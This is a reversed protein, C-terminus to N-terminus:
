VDLLGSFSAAIMPVPDWFPITKLFSTTKGQKNARSFSGPTQTIERCSQAIQEFPLAGRDREGMVCVSFTYLGVLFPPFDLILGLARKKKPLDGNQALSRDLRRNHKKKEFSASISHRASLFTFFFSLLACPLCNLSLPLSLMTKDLLGLPLKGPWLM